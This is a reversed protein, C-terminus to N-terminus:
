KVESETANKIEKLCSHLCIFLIVNYLIYCIESATYISSVAGEPFKTYFAIFSLVAYIVMLCLGLMVFTFLPSKRAKREFIGDILLFLAVALALDSIFSLVFGVTRTATIYQFVAAVLALVGAGIGFGFAATCEKNIKMTLILTAAALIIVVLRGVSYVSELSFFVMAGAESFQHGEGFSVTVLATIVSAISIIMSICFIIRLFWLARLRKSIDTM